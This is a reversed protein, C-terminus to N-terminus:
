YGKAVEGAVGAIYCTATAWILTSLVTRVGQRRNNKEQEARARQQGTFVAETRRMKKGSSGRHNRDFNGPSSGSAIAPDSSSRNYNSEFVESRSDQDVVPDLNVYGTPSMTTPTPPLPITTGDIPNARLPKTRTAGSPSPQGERLRLVLLDATSAVPEYGEKGLQKLHPLFKVPNALKSLAVSLSIPTEGSSKVTSSTESTEVTRASRDYALLKYHRVQSKSSSENAVAPAEPSADTGGQVSPVPHPFKEEPAPTTPDKKKPTPNQAALEAELNDPKFKYKDPNKAEHEVLNQHISEDVRGENEPQASAPLPTSPQRHDYTIKGYHKEYVERLTRSLAADSLLGNLNNLVGQAQPPTDKSVQRCFSTDKQTTSNREKLEQELSKRKGNKCDELEREYSTELGLPQLSYGYWDKAVDPSADKRRQEISRPTAFFETKSPCVDSYSGAGAAAEQLEEALSKKEGNRVAEMERAYSSQLGTPTKSYGDDPRSEAQSRTRIEDELSKGSEIERQFSTELGMPNKSYGDDASQRDPQDRAQLEDELSKGSRREREFSTQLGTPRRSYGDDLQEPQEKASIEAGLDRGAAKERLYSTQLGTPEHSYGDDVSPRRGSKLHRSLATEMEPAIEAKVAKRRDEVVGQPPQAIGDQTSKSVPAEIKSGDEDVFSDSNQIKKFEQDLQEQRKQTSSLEQSPVRGIRRMRSRIDEATLLDIDDEPLKNRRIPGFPTEVSEAPTFPKAPNQEPKIWPANVSRRKTASEKPPPPDLGQRAYWDDLRTTSQQKQKDDFAKLADDRPDRYSKSADYSAFTEDRSDVAASSSEQTSAAPEPTVQITQPEAQTSKADGSSTAVMRGSVPDYEFNSVSNNSASASQIPSVYASAQQTPIPAAEKGEKTPMSPKRDAEQGSEASVDTVSSSRRCSRMRPSPSEGQRMRNSWGFIAEYPDKDIEQRFREMRREFHRWEEDFPDAKWRPWRNRGWGGIGRTYASPRSAKSLANKVVGKNTRHPLM